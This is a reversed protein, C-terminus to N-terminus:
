PSREYWDFATEGYTKGDSRVLDRAVEAPPDRRAREVVLVGGPALLDATGPKSVLDAAWSGAYPPDALVLDFPAGLDGPRGLVRAAERPVVRAVAELDLAALNRRLAVVATRAREVFVVGCAGRSLAEIGLAGCGAFLDLVSAGQVRPGIWDFLGARARESTPRTDRGRATELSRGRLRGAVVRLMGGGVRVFLLRM